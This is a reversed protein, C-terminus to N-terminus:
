MSLKVQIAFFIKGTFETPLRQPHTDGLITGGAPGMVDLTFKDQTDSTLHQSKLFFPFEQINGPQHNM